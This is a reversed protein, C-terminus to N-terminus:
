SNGDISCGKSEWDEFYATIQHGDGPIQWDFVYTLSFCGDPGVCMALLEATPWIADASDLMKAPHDSFYNHNLELLTEAVMTRLSDWESHIRQYTTASGAFPGADNGDISLSPSGKCGLSAVSGAFWSTDTDM